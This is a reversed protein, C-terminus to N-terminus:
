IKKYKRNVIWLMISNVLLIFIVIILARGKGTKPLSSDAVKTSSQAQNTQSNTSKETQSKQNNNTSSSQRSSPQNNQTNSQNSNNSASPVQSNTPSPTANQTPSTSPSPSVSQTPSMSPSPSASPTPSTSPTPSMSPTPSTSPTPDDKIINFTKTITGEYKGIGKITVNAQGVHINNTYTLTYDTDEILTKNGDKIVIEPKIEKGTYKQNPINSISLNSINIKAEEITALVDAIKTAIVSHGTSNPHPDLNFALPSINVNTIRPNTTNFSDYIKAIRYEKEENSQNHLITNLRTIPTDCFEGLNYTGLKLDYYPNYFETAIITTEPNISKIYDVSKKWNINYSEVGQDIKTQTEESTFFSYVAALIRAKETVSASIFTNQVKTLFAPDNAPIGTIDALAATALELIENSGISVTILEADKIAQTYNSKQIEQYFEACTMGSVALNKFNSESINNKSKVIAAYSEADRNELGYGYAISDGLALYKTFKKPEAQAVNPLIYSILIILIIALCIIKKLKIKM